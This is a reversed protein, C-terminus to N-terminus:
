KIWGEELLRFFEEWYNRWSGEAIEEYILFPDVYSLFPDISTNLAFSSIEWFGCEKDLKQWHRLCRNILQSSTFILDFLFEMKWLGVVSTGRPVSWRARLGDSVELYASHDRISFM